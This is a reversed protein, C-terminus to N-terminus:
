LAAAVLLSGHSKTRDEPKSLLQILKQLMKAPEGRRVFDAVYPAVDAPLNWLDSLLLIPARPYRERIQRALEVPTRVSNIRHDLIVAEVDSETLFEVGTFKVLATAPEYGAQKLLLSYIELHSPDDDVVLV